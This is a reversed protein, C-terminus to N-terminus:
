MKKSIRLIDNVLFKDALDSDTYCMILTGSSGNEYARAFSLLKQAIVITKNSHEDFGKAEEKFLNDLSRLMEVVDPIFLVVKKGKNLLNQAYSIVDVVKRFNFENSSGYPTSFNNELDLSKFIIQNEFSTNIAMTILVYNHKKCYEYFNAFDENEYIDEDLRYVNRRGVKAQVNAYPLGTNDIVEEGKEYIDMAVNIPEQDNIAIINIANFQNEGCMRKAETKIKDGIELFNYYPLHEDVFVVGDTKIDYFIVNENFKRLVGELVYTNKDEDEFLSDVSSIDQAFLITSFDKSQTIVSDYDRKENEPTIKNTLSDLINLKKYPRGRKPSNADLNTGNRVAELILSILEERKKTTPSPVGLQRAVGRLEFIGLERILMEKQIEEKNESM